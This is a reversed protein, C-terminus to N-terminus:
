GFLILYLLFIFLLIYGAIQFVFELVVWKFCKSVKRGKVSIFTKM